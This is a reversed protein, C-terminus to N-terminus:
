NTDHSFSKDVNFSLARCCVSTHSVHQVTNCWSFLFHLINTRPKPRSRHFWPARNMGVRPGRDIPWLGVRHPDRQQEEWERWRSVVDFWMKFLVSSFKPHGGVTCFLGCEDDRAKKWKLAECISNELPDQYFCNSTQPPEVFHDLAGKSLFGRTSTLCLDIPAQCHIQM